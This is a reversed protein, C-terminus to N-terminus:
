ISSSLYLSPACYMGSAENPAEANCPDIPAEKLDPISAFYELIESILSGTKLRSKVFFSAPMRGSLPDVIFIAGLFCFYAPSCFAYSFCIFERILGSSEPWPKGRM